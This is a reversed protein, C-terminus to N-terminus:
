VTCHQVPASFLIRSDSEGIRLLNRIRADKSCIGIWAGTTGVIFYTMTSNRSRTQSAWTRKDIASPTPQTEPHTHWEGVWDVKQESGDWAKSAIKQHSPDRRFFSKSEISGGTGSFYLRYRSYLRCASPRTPNRWARRYSRTSQRLRHLCPLWSGECNQRDKQM